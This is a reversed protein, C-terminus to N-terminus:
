GGSPERRASRALAVIHDARSADVGVSHFPCDKSHTGAQWYGAGNYGCFVCPGALICLGQGGLDVTRAVIKLLGPAVTSSQPEVSNIIYAGSAGEPTATHSLQARRDRVQRRNIPARRETPAPVVNRGLRDARDTSFSADHKPAVQPEQTSKDTAALPSRAALAADWASAAMTIPTEEGGGKLYDRLWDNFTALSPRALADAIASINKSLVMGEAKEARDIVHELRDLIYDVPQKRWWDRDMKSDGHKDADSM